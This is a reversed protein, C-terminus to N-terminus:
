NVDKEKFELSGDAASKELVDELIAGVHEQLEVEDESLNEIPSSLIFFSFNLCDQEANFSINGFRLLTEVYDGELIRIAWSQSNDEEQPILEYHVGELVKDLNM